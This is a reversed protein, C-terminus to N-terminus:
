LEPSVTRSKQDDRLYQNTRPLVPAVWLFLLWAFWSVVFTAFLWIAKEKKSVIPDGLIFGLPIGWLVVALFSWELFDVFEMSLYYLLESSALLM